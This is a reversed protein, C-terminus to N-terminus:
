KKPAAKKINGKFFDILEKLDKNIPKKRTNASQQQGM